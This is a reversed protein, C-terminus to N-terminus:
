KLLKPLVFYERAPKTIKRIANEKEKERGMRGAGLPFPFFTL